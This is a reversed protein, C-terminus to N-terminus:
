ATEVKSLAVPASGGGSGGGPIPNMEAFRIIWSTGASTLNPMNLAMSYYKRDGFVETEIRDSGPSERGPFISHTDPKPTPASALGPASVVVDGTVKRPPPRIM